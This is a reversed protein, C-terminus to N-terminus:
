VELKSNRFIRKYDYAILECSGDLEQLEKLIKKAHNRLKIAKDWNPSKRVRLYVRIEGNIKNSHYNGYYKTEVGTTNFTEIYSFDFFEYPIYLCFGNDDSIVMCIEPQEVWGDYGPEEYYAQYLKSCDHWVSVIWNENSTMKCNSEDDYHYNGDFCWVPYSVPIYDVDDFIGDDNL